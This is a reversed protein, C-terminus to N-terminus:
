PDTSAPYSFPVSRGDAIELVKDVGTMAIEIVDAAKGQILANLTTREAPERFNRNRSDWEPLYSRRPSTRARQVRAEGTSIKLQATLDCSRIGPRALCAVPIRCM